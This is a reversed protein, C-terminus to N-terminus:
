EAKKILVIQKRKFCIHLDIESVKESIVQENIKSLMGNTSVKKVAKQM